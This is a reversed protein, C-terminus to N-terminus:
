YRYLVLTKEKGYRSSDERSKKDIYNEFKESNFELINKIFEEEHLFESFGDSYVIISDNKSLPVEGSKIFEIATKRWNICWFVCM